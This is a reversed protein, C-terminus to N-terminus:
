EFIYGINIRFESTEDEFMLTTKTTAFFFGLVIGNEPVWLVGAENSALTLVDYEKGGPQLSVPDDFFLKEESGRGVFLLGNLMLEASYSNTQIENHVSEKLLGQSDSEAKPSNFFSYELRLRTGGPDGFMASAGVLVNNWHNDVRGDSKEKVREYGAGLYLFDFVKVSISGVIASETIHRNDDTADHYEHRDNEWAGLGVSVFENGLLSLNIRGISQDLLMPINQQQETTISNSWQGVGADFSVNSFKLHLNASSASIDYKHTENGDISRNGSAERYTGGIGKTDRWSAAAPMRVFDTPDFSATISQASTWLPFLMGAFILLSLKAQSRNIM